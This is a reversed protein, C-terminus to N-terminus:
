IADVRRAVIVAIAELAALDDSLLRRGGTMPAVTLAYRPSETTPVVVLAAIGTRPTEDVLSSELPDVSRMLEAADRGAVVLAVHDNVPAHRWARWTVATSNLAPALLDCVESLLTAVDDHTQSRRGIEARLARYDPRDLIVTDVIWALSARVVPYV